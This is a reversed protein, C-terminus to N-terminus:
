GNIKETLTAKITTKRINKMYFIRAKEMSRNLYEILDAPIHAPQPFVLKVGDALGKTRIWIMNPETGGRPAGPPDINRANYFMDSFISHGNIDIGLRSPLSYFVLGRFNSVYEEGKHAGVNKSAVFDAILPSRATIEVGTDTVTATLECIEIDPPTKQVLSVVFESM